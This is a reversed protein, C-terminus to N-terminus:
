SMFTISRGVLMVTIACSGSRELIGREDFQEEVIELFFREAEAFGKRLAEEV